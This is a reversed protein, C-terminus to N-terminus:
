RTEEELHDNLDTLEMYLNTLFTERERDLDSGVDLDQRALRALQTLVQPLREKREHLLGPYDM